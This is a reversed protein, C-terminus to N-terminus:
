SAFGLLPQPCSIHRNKRTIQSAPVQGSTEWFHDIGRILVKRRVSRQLVSRGFEPAHVMGRHVICRSLYSLQSLPYL